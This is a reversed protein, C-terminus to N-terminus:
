CLGLLHRAEGITYLSGCVCVLGESGAAALARGIGEQLSGCPSATAGRGKLYAALEGAALARPSDPTLTFLEKALPLLEEMMARWDKDAMVGTLFVPKEAPCLERLARALAEMCQPNHGGDLILDPSRRVLEMRGPWRARDLGQVVAEEPISWGRRRLIDATDLVVAANHLQHGGLLSISYPGKGRYTFTQGELGASLLELAAPCTATLSVDRERCIGEVTEMVARDQRYLVAECGPKLIGAKEAAIQELTDGLLQTHELGIRAIAAGEPAGIVNTPDLRGGLGTELVVIDCGSRLFYLMGIATMLEFETEDEAAELVQATLAALDGEPIPSGDVQFREGFSWLHPSTYLGTRLGAATLISSLMAATSGKGNSGAIHVFRLSKQPDGLKGLLRRIRELGPTRGTWARQHILAEAEQGTM